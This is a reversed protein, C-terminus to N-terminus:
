GADRTAEIPDPLRDRRLRDGGVIARAKLVMNEFM